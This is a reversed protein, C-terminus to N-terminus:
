GVELRYGKGHINTIRVAPDAALKKRLRSIFVDPSRGVFVGEDEWVEKLLRDRELVEGIHRAFLALLKAEKATLSIERGEFELAQRAPFFAHRGLSIPVEGGPSNGAATRAPRKLWIFGVLTLGLLVPAVIKIASRGSFAPQEFTIRITYCGKPQNRGTCPVLTDKNNGTMLYGYIIQDGLCSLVNVVYRDPVVGKAVAQQVSKQIIGVLTDPNFFLESEFRILYTDGAGKGVPLVRSVSDGAALLISHGVQRMVIEVQEEALGDQSVPLLLASFSFGTVLVTISLLTKM